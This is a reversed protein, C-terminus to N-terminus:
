PPDIWNAAAIAAHTLTSPTPRRQRSAIDADACYGDDGLERCEYGDGPEYGDDGLEGCAYENGPLGSSYSPSATGRGGLFKVHLSVSPFRGPHVLVQGSRQGWCHTTRQGPQLVNQRLYKEKPIQLHPKPM